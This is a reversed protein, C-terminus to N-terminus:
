GHAKRARKEAAKFYKEAAADRDEATDFFRPSVYAGYSYGNRTSSVYLGYYTGEPYAFYAGAPDSPSTFTRTFRRVMAGITRRGEAKTSDYLGAFERYETGEDVDNDREYTTRNGDVPKIEM